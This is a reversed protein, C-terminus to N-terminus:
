LLDDVYGLAHRNDDCIRAWELLLRWVYLRMDERRLAQEAWHQGRQAIFRAASDGEQGSGDAFFELVPYLDRFTNDLPVFHVWPTLRDDHWESYITAKLPVSTSRLFGRFRASFSNGDADPLLKYQYQDRMPKREIEKYYEFIFDCEGPPCMKVFGVDALSDIWPALDKQKTHSSNYINTDPLEFTRARRAESKEARAVTTANLMDILRLRHFHHWTGPHPRGGSADGRWIVGDKKRRWPAGHNRGGEYFEDDTLYMAGPILIENNMPLKSGGFLPILEDTSSLSIPEVFTGHLQRLHPQECPDTAATWNYIFGEYAYDPRYNQPFEAPGTFDKMAKVGHAPSEPGCAKVALDWYSKKPGAWRPNYLKPKAADVEALGGYESKADVPSPMSREEREKSVLKSIEDFPVLLRSEDMYNIPMDVDPMHEAFEKVLNTWLELWAVRDEVDGVGEATGNRVSVVWPWAHARARIKKTEMAWWPTLDKYIRDFYDEVIISNAKLAAQVWREFGPPPHRGRAQRYREAAEEVSFSRRSLKEDHSERADKMLKMIPHSSGFSATYQLYAVEWSQSQDWFGYYNIVFFVFLVFVFIYRKLFRSPLRASFPLRKLMNLM